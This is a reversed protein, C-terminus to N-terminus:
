FAMSHRATNPITLPEDVINVGHCYMDCILGEPMEDDEVAQILFGYHIKTRPIMDRFSVLMKRCLPNFKRVDIGIEMWEGAPDKIIYGSKTILAPKGNYKHLLDPVNIDQPNECCAMAKFLGSHRDMKKNYVKRKDLCRNPDDKPGGPVGAPGACFERFLRVCPSPNRSSLERLTEPKIHFFVVFSCGADEKSFPNLGSSHPLMMNICIIRPLPCGMTWQLPKGGGHEGDGILGRPSPLERVLRGIIDEIKSSAMIADCTIAEYMATQTPIKRATQLYNPGSRVGLPGYMGKSWYPGDGTQPLEAGTWEPCSTGFWETDGCAGGSAADRSRGRSRSEDDAKGARRQLQSSAFTAFVLGKRMKLRIQERATRGSYSCSLYSDRNSDADSLGYARTEESESFAERYFADDGCLSNNIDCVGGDSHNKRRICCETQSPRQGM